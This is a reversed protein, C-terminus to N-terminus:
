NGARAVDGALNGYDRAADNKASGKEGVGDGVRVPRRTGFIARAYRKKRGKREKEAGGREGRKQRIKGSSM